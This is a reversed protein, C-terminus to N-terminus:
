INTINSSFHMMCTPHPVIYNNTVVVEGFTSKMVYIKDYDFSASLSRTLVSKLVSFPSDVEIELINTKGLEHLTSRKLVQSM